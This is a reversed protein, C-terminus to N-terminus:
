QGLRPLQRASFEDLKPIRTFRRRYVEVARLRKARFRTRTPGVSLREEIGLNRIALSLFIDSLRHWQSAQFLNRPEKM